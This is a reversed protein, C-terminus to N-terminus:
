VHPQNREGGLGELISERSWTQRYRSILNREVFNLFSLFSFYVGLGFRRLDIQLCKLSRQGSGEEDDGEDEDNEGYVGDTENRQVRGNRWDEIGRDKQDGSCTLEMRLDAADLEGSCIVMHREHPPFLRALLDVDATLSSGEPTRTFSFFPVQPHASSSSEGERTTNQTTRSNIHHGNQIQTDICSKTPTIIPSLPTLPPVGLVTHKSPSKYGSHVLSQLDSYSRSPYKTTLTPEASTFSTASISQPSHSFYGDDDENTSISSSCSSTPSPSFDPISSKRKEAYHLQSSMKPAKPSSYPNSSTSPTSILDPFAVLKIIKLGWHDVGFEESLGVCALDPHLITVEGSTPSHAKTRPSQAPGGATSTRLSSQSNALDTESTNRTLVAGGTAIPRSQPSSFPPLDLFSAEDTTPSSFPSTSPSNSDGDSIYLHFGSSAFLDMAEQLRSEKVQSFFFIYSFFFLRSYCFDRVFIFDSMYSSQYLISIGAAALPASLDYM